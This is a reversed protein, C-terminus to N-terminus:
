AQKSSLQVVPLHCSQNRQVTYIADLELAARGIVQITPYTQQFLLTKVAVWQMKNLSQCVNQFM